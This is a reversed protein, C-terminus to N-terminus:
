RKEEEKKKKRRRMTYEYASNLQNRLATFHRTATDDFAPHQICYALLYSCNQLYDSRNARWEPQLAHQICLTILEVYVAAATPNNARLLPLLELLVSAAATGSPLSQLFTVDNAKKIKPALQVANHETVSNMVKAASGFVFPLGSSCPTSPGSSSCLILVLLM